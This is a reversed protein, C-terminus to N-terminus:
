VPPQEFSSKALVYSGNQIVTGPVYRLENKWLRVVIPAGGLILNMNGSLQGMTPHSCLHAIVAIGERLLAPEFGKLKLRCVVEAAEMDRMVKIPVYRRMLLLGKGETGDVTTNLIRVRDDTRLCYLSLLAEISTRGDVPVSLPEAVQLSHTILWRQFEIALHEDELLGIDRTFCDPEPFDENKRRNTDNDMVVTWSFYLRGFLNRLSDLTQIFCSKM